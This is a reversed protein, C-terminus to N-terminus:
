PGLSLGHFWGSFWIVGHCNWLRLFMNLRTIMVVLAQYLQYAQVPRILLFLMCPQQDSSLQHNLGRNNWDVNWLTRPCSVPGFSFLRRSSCASSHNTRIPWYASASLGLTNTRHTESFTLLVSDETKRRRDPLLGHNFWSAGRTLTYSASPSASREQLHRGCASDESPLYSNYFLLYESSSFLNSM